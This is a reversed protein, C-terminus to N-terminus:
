KFLEMYEELISMSNIDTEIEVAEPAIHSSFFFSGNHKLKTFTIHNQASGDEHPLKKYWLYLVNSGLQVLQIHITRSSMKLCM